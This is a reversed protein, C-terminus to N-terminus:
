LDICALVSDDPIQNKLQCDKAAVFTWYNDRGPGGIIKEGKWTNGAQQFEALSGLVANTNKAILVLTVRRGTGWWTRAALRSLPRDLANMEGLFAQRHADGGGTCQKERASVDLAFTSFQLSSISDLLGALDAGNIGVEPMRFALTELVQFGKLTLSL